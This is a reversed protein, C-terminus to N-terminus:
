AQEQGHLMSCWLCGASVVAVARVILSMDLKYLAEHTM